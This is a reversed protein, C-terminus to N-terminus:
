PIAGLRFEAQDSESESSAERESAEPEPLEAAAFLPSQIIRDLSACLESAMALSEEVTWIVQLLENTM